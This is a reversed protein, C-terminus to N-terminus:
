VYALCSDILWEHAMMSWEIWGNMSGNDVKSDLWEIGMWSGNVWWLRGDRM